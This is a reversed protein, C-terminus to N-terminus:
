LQCISNLQGLFIYGVSSVIIYSSEIMSMFLNRNELTEYISLVCVCNRNM